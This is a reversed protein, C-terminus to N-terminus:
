ARAQQQPFREAAAQTVLGRLWAHAPDRQHRRHWLMDVHVKAVEFPLRRFVLEDAYGTAALFHEPLVTLLDSRSM